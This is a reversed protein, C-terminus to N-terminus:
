IMIFYEYYKLKMIYCITKGIDMNRKKKKKKKKKPSLFQFHFEM